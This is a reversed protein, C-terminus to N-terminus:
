SQAATQQLGEQTKRKGTYKVILRANKYANYFDPQVFRFPMMYIDAEKKLSKDAAAFVGAINMTSVKSVNSAVRKQPISEKFLIILNELETLDNANVFYKGLANEQIRAENLILKAVDVLLPDPKQLASSRYNVKALLVPDKIATAHAALAAVVKLVQTILREKQMAKNNTLGSQNAEQVQRNADILGLYDILQGHAAVLEDFGSYLSRNAELVKNVAQYMRSKNVQLINM